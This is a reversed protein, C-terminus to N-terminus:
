EGKSGEHGTRPVRRQWNASCVSMNWRCYQVSSYRTTLAIPATVSIQQSFDKSKNEVSFMMLNILPLLTHNAPCSSRVPTFLIDHSTKYLLRCLCCPPGRNLHSSVLLVSRLLCQSPPYLSSQNPKPSLCTTPQQSYPLSGKRDM